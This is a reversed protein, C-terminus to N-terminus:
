NPQAIQRIWGMVALPDKADPCGSQNLALRLTDLAVRTEEYLALVQTCKENPVIVEKKKSLLRLAKTLHAIEENLFSLAREDDTLEGARGDKIRNNIELVRDGLYRAIWRRYVYRNDDRVKRIQAM